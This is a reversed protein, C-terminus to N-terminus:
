EDDLQRHHSHRAIPKFSPRTSVPLRALDDANVILRRAPELRAMTPAVAGSFVRLGTRLILLIKQGQEVPTPQPGFVDFEQRELKRLCRWYVSGDLEAAVM